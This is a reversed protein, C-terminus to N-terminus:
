RESIGMLRVRVIKDRPVEPRSSRDPRVREGSAQGMLEYITPPMTASNIGIARSPERLRFGM